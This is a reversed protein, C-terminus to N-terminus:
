AEDGPIARRSQAILARLENLAAPRHHPLLVWRNVFQRCNVEVPDGVEEIAEVPHHSVDPGFLGSDM